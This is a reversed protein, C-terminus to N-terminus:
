LLNTKTKPHQRPMSIKLLKELTELTCGPKPVNQQEMGGSLTVFALGEGIELRLKGM